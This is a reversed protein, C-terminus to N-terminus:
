QAKRFKTKTPGMRMYNPVGNNNAFFICGMAFVQACSYFCWISAQEFLSPTILSALFPGTAFLFIGLIAVQKNIVLFPAFMLFCHVSAGPVFYTADYMPVSWGLHLDGSFTCWEVGRLWETSPCQASPHFTSWPAAAVRFMFWVGGLACMTLIANYKAKAAADKPDVIGSCMFHTFFPQLCIHFMGLGTLVKNTINDCQDIYMYQFGQLFEMLFFFFIGGSMKINRTRVYFGVSVMLGFAAMAFSMPQNFCM